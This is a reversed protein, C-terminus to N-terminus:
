FANQSLFSVYEVANTRSGSRNGKLEPGHSFFFFVFKVNFATYVHRYRRHITYMKPVRQIYSSLSRASRPWRNIVRQIRVNHAIFRVIGNDATTKAAYPPRIGYRIRLFQIKRIVANKLGHTGTLDDSALRREM